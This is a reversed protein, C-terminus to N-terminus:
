GKIAGAGFGAVLHKQLFMFLVVIPITTVVGAAMLIGWSYVSTQSILGAIGLTLTKKSETSILVLAFIYDSWSLIMAFIFTAIIGPTAMPLVVKIFAQFRNAGDIMAAEELDVPIGAFYSRLLWMSFPLIISVQTISLATITNTLGLKAWILFFPIALLVSPMMYTLILLYMFLKMGLFRSRTLAYCGGVGLVISATGAVLGTILSNIFYAEFSTVRFLEIFNNFTPEKPLFTPPTKYVEVNPKFSNLIMWILPMIIMLAIAWGIITYIIKQKSSSVNLAM